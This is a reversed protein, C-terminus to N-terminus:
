SNDLKMRKAGDTGVNLQRAPAEALPARPQREFAFTLFHM